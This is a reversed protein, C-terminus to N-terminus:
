PKATGLGTLYRGDGEKNWGVLSGCEFDGNILSTPYKLNTNGSIELIAQPISISVGTQPDADGVLNVEGATKEEEVLTRVIEVEVDSAFGNSVNESFGFYTEAGKGLFAQGLKDTQTSQCSSNVIVSNPFSKNLDKIYRHSAGWVDEEIEWFWLLTNIQVNHFIRLKKALQLAKIEPRNAKAATVEEGTLFWEGVSGHTQLIVMGYDTFTQIADINANQNSLITLDFDFDSDDLIDEIKETADDGFINEYPAYILVKRNGIIDDSLDCTNSLRGTSISTGVTQQALPLAPKANRAPFTGQRTIFGNGDNFSFVMNSSLGSKYDIEITNYGTRVANQVQDMAILYSVTEDLSRDIRNVNENVRELFYDTAMQSAEEIASYADFPIDAYVVLKVISSRAAAQRGSANTYTTVIQLFVEGTVDPDFIFSGTFVNDDQIEDYNSLDGNDY